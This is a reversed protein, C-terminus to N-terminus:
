GLQRTMEHHFSVLEAMPVAKRSVKSLDQGEVTSPPPWAHIGESLPLAAVETEWGPWRLTEYFQTLSGALIAYLWDAYGQELDLWDLDDPGFYQITPPAGPAAPAWAFQGGLVDYGVVLRRSAPDAEVTVDPLGDAGSGLVRLWGHDICIGGTHAVVAGLWSRTTIGLMELCNHAREADPALMTVPYPARQAAALVEDWASSNM